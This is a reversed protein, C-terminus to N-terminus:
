YVDCDEERLDRGLAVTLVATVALLWAPVMGAVDGLFRALRQLNPHHVLGFPERRVAPLDLADQDASTLYCTLVAVFPLVFFLLLAKGPSWKGTPRRGQRVENGIGDGNILSWHIATPSHLRRREIYNLAALWLVLPALAAPPFDLMFNRAPEFAILAAM